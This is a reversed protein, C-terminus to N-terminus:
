VRRLGPDDDLDRYRPHQPSLVTPLWGDTMATQTSSASPPAPPTPQAPEPPLLLQERLVQAQASFRAMRLRGLKNLYSEGPLDEGALDTTLQDIQQAAQASLDEFFAAPDALQALEQPRWRSWHDHALVAYPTRLQSSTM